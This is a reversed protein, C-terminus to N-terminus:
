AAEGRTSYLWEPLEREDVGFATGKGRLQLAPLEGRKIKSVFTRRSLRLRQAVGEPLLLRREASISSM